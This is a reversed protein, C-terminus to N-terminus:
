SKDRTLSKRFTNWFNRPPPAFRSIEVFDASYSKHYCFDLSHVICHRYNVLIETPNGVKQQNIRSTHSRPNKPNLNKAGKKRLPLHPVRVQHKEERLFFASKWVPVPSGPQHFWMHIRFVTHRKHSLQFRGCQLSIPIVWVGLTHHM